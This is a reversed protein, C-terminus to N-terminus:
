YWDYGTEFSPILLIKFVGSVGGKKEEKGVGRRGEGVGVEEAEGGEEWVWGM